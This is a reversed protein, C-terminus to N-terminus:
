PKVKVPFQYVNKPIPVGCWRAKGYYLYHRFKVLLVLAVLALLQSM